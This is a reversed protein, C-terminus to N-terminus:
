FFFRLWGANLASHFDMYNAPKCVGDFNSMCASRQKLVIELDLHEKAMGLKYPSPCVSPGIFESFFV